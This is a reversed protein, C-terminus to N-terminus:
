AVPRPALGRPSASAGRHVTRDRSRLVHLRIKEANCMGLLKQRQRVVLRFEGMRLRLIPRLLDMM